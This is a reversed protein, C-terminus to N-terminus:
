GRYGVIRLAFVGYLDAVEVDSMEGDPHYWVAVGMGSQLISHTALLSSEVEFIGRAIGGDIISKFMEIYQRRLDILDSRAPEELSPIERNGVKSHLRRQAHYLVHERFGLRLQEPIEDTSNIADSVAAMLEHMASFMIERLLEQKSPVHNYIASGRIGVSRGIDNM